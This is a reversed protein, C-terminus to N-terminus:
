QRTGPFHETHIEGSRGYYVVRKGLLSVLYGACGAGIVRACFKKYTYGPMMQQADRIADKVATNDFRDAVSTLVPAIKLELADGEALYYTRTGRRFDVAYGDFGAEMLMKLGEPFTMTGNESGELTARAIERWNEIM